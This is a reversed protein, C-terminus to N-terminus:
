ENLTLTVFREVRTLLQENTDIIQRLYERCSAWAAPSASHEITLQAAEATSAAEVAPLKDLDPDPATSPSTPSYDQSSSM